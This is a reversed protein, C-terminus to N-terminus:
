TKVAMTTQGENSVSLWNTASGVQIPSSKDITTGDGLQGKQNWGWIWLSGDTKISAYRYHGPSISVWNTLAGVQKPSSYSTTNGLGLQGGAGTWGWTWLTGDNKIAASSYAGAVANLWTTM